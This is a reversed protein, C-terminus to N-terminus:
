HLLIRTQVNYRCPILRFFFVLYCCNVHYIGGVEIKQFLRFITIKQGINAISFYLFFVELYIQVRLTRYFVPVCSGFPCLLFFFSFIRHASFHRFDSRGSLRCSYFFFRRKKKKYPQFVGHPRTVVTGNHSHVYSYNRPQTPSM